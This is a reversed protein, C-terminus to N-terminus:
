SAPSTIAKSQTYEEFGEVGHERGVGSIGYGGFPLDPHSWTVTGNIGISGARLRRAVRLARQPDSSQVFGALGYPTSNAIRIADNEDKYRLVCLVPGFVETQAITSTTDVDALLTPEVWFGAEFRAEMKPVKGGTVLRAGEAIGNDILDLIRQHQAANIIPGIVTAGNQPDGIPLTEFLARLRDIAEDFLTDPVLLRTPLACGQGTLVCAMTGSFPIALDLNADDLLINASKGGLELAVKRLGVAARQMIRTGTAPSGTFHLVDVRPDGTLVEGVEAKDASTVINVVGPPFDTKEAVVRGIETASFPTAPAAKLVATNGAALAPTLKWINTLFPANWPSILGAVGYPEKHVARAEEHDGLSAMGHSREYEYSGALEIMFSMGEIVSAVVPGATSLVQGAEAIQIDRFLDAEERLAAQLQRLCHQRQGHDRSWQTEDFARRAAGIAREMDQERGDAAKGVLSGDAPNINDYRALGSAETLQGDILLRHEYKGGM